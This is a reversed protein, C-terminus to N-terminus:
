GVRVSVHHRFGAASGNFRTYLLGAAVSKAAYHFEEKGKASEIEWKVHQAPFFVIDLWPSDLFIFLFSGFGCGLHSSLKNTETTGSANADQPFLLLPQELLGGRRKHRNSTVPFDLIWL